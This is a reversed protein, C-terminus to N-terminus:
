PFLSTSQSPIRGFGPRREGREGQPERCVEFQAIDGLGLQAFAVAQCTLQFHPADEGEAHGHQLGAADLGLVCVDEALELSHVRM